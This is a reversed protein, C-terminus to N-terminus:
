KYKDKSNFKLVIVDSIKSPLVVNVDKHSTMEGIPIGNPLVGRIGSTILKLGRTPQFEPDSFFGITPTNSGNGQLFGYVESGAIRVPINSKSDTLSRVKAFNEAVDSVIGVLSGEFSIVVMGSEVGADSGKNIFFTSHSFAENNYTINSIISKQPIEKVIDLQQTLHQNESIAIDCETKNRLADSLRVKLEENESRLTSLERIGSAARGIAHIPWTVGDGVWQAVPLVIKALGNMIKYDPKDIMIYILFVPLVAATIASKVISYVRSSIKKQNM